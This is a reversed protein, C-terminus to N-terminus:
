APGCAPSVFLAGLPTSRQHWGKPPTFDEGRPRLAGGTPFAAPLRAFGQLSHGTAAALAGTYAGDEPEVAAVAVTGCDLVPEIRPATANIERVRQAWREAGFDVTLAFALVAAIAAGAAVWRPVLRPVLLGVGLAVAVLPPLLYRSQVPLGRHAELVFVLPWLVITAAPLASDANRRLAFGLCALAVLVFGLPTIRDVLAELVGGWSQSSGLLEDTRHASALPDGTVIADYALWLAPAAAAAVAGALVRRHKAEGFGAVAALAWAEPRLLGALILALVRAQGRTAFAVAVLAATVADVLQFALIDPLQAAALFVIVAVFGAAPGAQNEAASFLAAVLAGLALAVVVGMARDPPLPSVLMGLVSGLPKPATATLEYGLRDGHLLTEAWSLYAWADPSAAAPWTLTRWLFLGASAVGVALPIGSAFRPRTPM